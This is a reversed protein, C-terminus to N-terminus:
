SRSGLGQLQQLSQNVLDQQDQANLNRRLIKGAVSTALDATQAYVEQLAQDRAAEIEKVARSKTEEADKAAQSKINAAINEAQQTAQALTAQIEAQAKALKANYERLTAEAAARAKEAEHIDNRIKNERAELGKVIPGWASKGLIIILLVFVIVTTLATIMAEKPAKILTPTGEEHGGMEGVARAATREAAGEAVSDAARGMVPMALLLGMALLMIFQKISRHNM